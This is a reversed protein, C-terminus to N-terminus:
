EDDGESPPMTCGEGGSGAIKYTKDGPMFEVSENDPVGQDNLLAMHINLVSRLDAKLRSRKGRLVAIEERLVDPLVAAKAELGSRAVEAESRIVDAERRAQAVITESLQQAGALAETLSKEMERYTKNQESLDENRERLQIVERQLAEFADAARALFGNVRQKDYGRFVTKFDASYLDSVTLDPADGLVEELVKNKEQELDV